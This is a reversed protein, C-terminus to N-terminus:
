AEDDGTGTESRRKAAKGVGGAGSGSHGAPEPRGSADAGAASPEAERSAIRGRIAREIETAQQALRREMNHAMKAMIYELEPNRARKERVRTFIEPAPVDLSWTDGDVSYVFTPDGDAILGFRGNAAFEVVDRGTVFALFRPTGGDGIVFLNAKGAVNVDIRVVRPWDVVFSMAKGPPLESWKELNHMRQM